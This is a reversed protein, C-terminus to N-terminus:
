KGVRELPQNVYKDWLQVYLESKSMDSLPLNYDEAINDLEITKIGPKIYQELHCLTESVISCAKKM